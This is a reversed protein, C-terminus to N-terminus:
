SREVVRLTNSGSCSSIERFLFDTWLHACARSNESHARQVALHSSLDCVFEPTAATDQGSIARGMLINDEYTTFFGPTVRTWGSLFNATRGSQAQGEIRIEHTMWGGPPAEQVAGVSRVGPIARLRSEIQQFLLPLQDM